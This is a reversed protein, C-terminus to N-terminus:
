KWLDKPYKGEAIYTNIANVVTSKDSEYTVGYWKSSTNKIYVTALKGAIEENSINPIMYEAKPDDLHSDLFASFKSQVAKLFNTTFGFMNVTAVDDDTIKFAPREDLPRAIIDGNEFGVQSEIIEEIIGNKVHAIGRKVTGNESLTNKVKYGVALYHNRSENNKLFDMIIEYAELGYFDDANIVAFSSKLLERASYIAGGTGWPKTRNIPAQYGEPLDNLEQFVYEVKIKGAIRNGITEKFLVEHEKKIVFIVRNFGAKIADYISYDIIFEGNPGVPAIQKLSGFRESLGAAMIILTYETM